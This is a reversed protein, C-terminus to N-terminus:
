RKGAAAPRFGVIYGPLAATENVGKFQFCDGNKTNFKWADCNKSDLCGGCCAGKTMGPKKELLQGGVTTSDLKGECRKLPREVVGYRFTGAQMTEDVSTKSVGKLLVCKQFKALFLWSECEEEDYCADCCGAEDQNAMEKVKTGDTNKVNDTSRCVNKDVEAGTSNDNASDDTVNTVNVMAKKKGAPDDTMNTANATAFSATSKRYVAYAGFASTYTPTVGETASTNCKDLVCQGRGVNFVNCGVTMECMRACWKPASCKFRGISKGAGSCSSMRGEEAKKVVPYKGQLPKLSTGFFAENLEQSKHFGARYGVRPRM